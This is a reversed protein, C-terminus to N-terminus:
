PGKFSLGLREASRQMQRSYADIVTRLNGSVQPCDYYFRIDEVEALSQRGSINGSGFVLTVTQGDVRVDLSLRDPLVRGGVVAGRLGSRPLLFPGLLDWLRGHWGDELRTTM